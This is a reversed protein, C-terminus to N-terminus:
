REIDRHHVRTKYGRKNLYGALSEAMVVSRHRGGTCGIVDGPKVLDRAWGYSKLQNVSNMQIIWEELTGKDGKVELYILAHPNVWEFRKVVGTVTIPNAMDFMATSHHASAAAGAIVAATAAVTLVGPDAPREMEQGLTAPPAGVM